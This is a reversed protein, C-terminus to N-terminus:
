IIVKSSSGWKEIGKKRCQTKTANELRGMGLLVRKLAMARFVKCGQRQRAPSLLYYIPYPFSVAERDGIKWIRDVGFSPTALEKMGM